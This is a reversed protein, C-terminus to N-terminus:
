KEGKLREDIAKLTEERDYMLGALLDFHNKISVTALGILYGCFVYVTYHNNTEDVAWCLLGAMVLHITMTLIAPFWM